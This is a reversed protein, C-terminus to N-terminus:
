VSVAEVALQVDDTAVTVTFACGAVGEAGVTSTVCGVQATAVPVTDTVEVVVPRFNIRPPM